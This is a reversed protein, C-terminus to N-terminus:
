SLLQTESCFDRPLMGVIYTQTLNLFEGQLESLGVGCWRSSRIALATRKQGMPELPWRVVQGGILARLVADNKKLKVHKVTLELGQISWLQERFM